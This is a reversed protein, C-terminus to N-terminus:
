IFRKRIEYKKDLYILLNIFEAILFVIVAFFVQWLLYPIQLYKFFLLFILTTIGLSILYPYLIKKHRVEYYARVLVLWMIPINIAIYIIDSLFLIIIFVSLVIFIILTILLPWM